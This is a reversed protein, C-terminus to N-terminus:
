SSLLIHLVARRLLGDINEKKMISRLEDFPKGLQCRLVLDGFVANPNNMPMTVLFKDISITKVSDHQFKSIIERGMPSSSNDSEEANNQGSQSKESLEESDIQVRAMKTQHDFTSGSEESETEKRKPSM